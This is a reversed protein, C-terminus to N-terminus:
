GGQKFTCLVEKTVQRASALAPCDEEEGKLEAMVEVYKVKDKECSGGQHGQAGLQAYVTM